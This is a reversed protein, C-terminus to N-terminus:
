SRTRTARRPPATVRLMLVACIDGPEAQVLGRYIGPTTGKPVTVEIDVPADRGPGVHSVLPPDFTIAAKKVVQQGAGLLDTAAITVHRLATSGHNIVSLEAGGRGGPEAKVVLEPVSPAEPAGAAHAAASDAIDAAIAGARGLLEAALGAFEGLLAGSSARGAERSSAHRRRPGGGAGGAGGAGGPPQGARARAGGVRGGTQLRLSERLGEVVLEVAEYGLAVSETVVSVLPEIPRRPQDGRESAM